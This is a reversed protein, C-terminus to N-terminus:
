ILSFAAIALILMFSIGAVMGSFKCEADSHSCGGKVLPEDNM